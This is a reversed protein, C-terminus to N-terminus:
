STKKKRKKHDKLDPSLFPKCPSLTPSWRSRYRVLSPTSRLPFRRSRGLRYPIVFVFEWVKDSHGDDCILDGNAMIRMVGGHSTSFWCLLKSLLSFLVGFHIFADFLTCSILSLSKFMGLYWVFYWCVLLRSVFFLFWIYFSSSCTANNWNSWVASNM